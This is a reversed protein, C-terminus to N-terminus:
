SVYAGLTLADLVVDEQPAFRTGAIESLRSRDVNKALAAIEAGYGNLLGQSRMGRALEVLGRQDPSWESVDFDFSGLGRLSFHAELDASIVEGALLSLAGIEAPPKIGRLGMLQTAAAVAPGSTFVLRTFDGTLAGCVALNEALEPVPAAFEIIRNLAAADAFYLSRNIAFRARQVQWRRAVSGMHGSIGEQLAVELQALIQERCAVSARVVDALTDFRYDLLVKWEERFFAVVRERWARVGGAQLLQGLPLYVGENSLAERLSDLQEPNRALFLKLRFKLAVLCDSRGGLASHGIRKYGEWEEQDAIADKDNNRKLALEELEQDLFSLAAAVDPSDVVLVIDDVYRFYRGSYKRTMAEDLKSLYASALVHSFESGVRLGASDGYDASILARKASARVIAADRATMSGANMVGLLANFAREGPISPYCSKLDTVVAVGGLRRLVKAIADNRERYGVSFHEFNRGYDSAPPPRYSFVQSSRRMAGCAHLRDLAYSDSIAESPSPVFYQRYYYKGNEISKFRKLEITRPSRRIAAQEIIADLVDDFRERSTSELLMRLSVYSPLHTARLYNLARLAIIRGNVM